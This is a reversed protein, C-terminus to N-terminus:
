LASVQPSIKHVDVFEASKLCQNRTNNRGSFGEFCADNQPSFVGVFYLNMRGSKFLHSWFLTLM